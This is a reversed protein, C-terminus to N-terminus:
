AAAIPFITNLSFVRRRKTGVSEEGLDTPGSARTIAQVMYNNGDCVVLTRKVADIVGAIANIKAWGVSWDRSRVLVEVGYHQVIEGTNFKGDRIPETDYLVVANDPSNPLNSVYAYWDVGPSSVALGTAILYARLIEAPSNQLVNIATGVSWVVCGRELYYTNGGYVIKAWWTYVGDAPTTAFTYTYVGTSAHTMATNAAVMVTDDSDRKVGFAATPDCLVISAADVAVGVADKTRITLVVSM